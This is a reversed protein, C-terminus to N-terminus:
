FSRSWGEHPPNKAKLFTCDKMVEISIRGVLEFFDEDEDVLGLVDLGGSINTKKTIKKM